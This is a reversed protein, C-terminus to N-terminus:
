ARRSVGARNDRPQLRAILRWEWMLWDGIRRSIKIKASTVPNGRRVWGDAGYFDRPTGLHAGLRHKLNTSSGVYVLRGGEYLAYCGAARPVQKRRTVGQWGHQKM